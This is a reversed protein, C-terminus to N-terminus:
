LRWHFESVCMEHGNAVCATHSSVVEKAGVHSLAVETSPLIIWEHHKPMDRCGLIRFSASTPGLM